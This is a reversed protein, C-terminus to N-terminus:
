SERRRVVLNYFVMIRVGVRGASWGGDDRGEEMEEKRKKEGRRSGKGKEKEDFLEELEEKRL